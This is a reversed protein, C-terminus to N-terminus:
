DTSGLRKSPPAKSTNTENSNFEINIDNIFKWTCAADKKSEIGAILGKIKKQLQTSPNKIYTELYSWDSPNAGSSSSIGRANYYIIGNLLGFVNWPGYNKDRMKGYDDCKNELQIRWEKINNKIAVKIKDKIKVGWEDLKKITYAFVLNGSSGIEENTNNPDSDGYICISGPATAHRGRTYILEYKNQNPQYTQSKSGLPDWLKDNVGKIRPTVANFNASTEDIAYVGIYEVPETNTKEPIKTLVGWWDGPGPVPDIAIIKIKFEPWLDALYNSAIICEVGGRSHGILVITGYEKKFRDIKENDAENWRLRWHGPTACQNQWNKWQSPYELSVAKHPSTRTEDFYGDFQEKTQSSEYRVMHITIDFMKAIGAIAITEMSLGTASDIKSPAPKTHYYKLIPQKDKIITNGFSDTDSEYGSNIDETEWIIVPLNERSENYPGGPGDLSTSDGANEWSKNNKNIIKHIKSPIYGSVENYCKIEDPKRLVLAHDLYCDTGSYCITFTKNM